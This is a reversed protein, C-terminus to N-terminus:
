KIAEFTPPKDGGRKFIASKLLRGTVTDYIRIGGRWDGTAYRKSDPSFALSSMPTATPNSYRIVKYDNSVDALKLGNYGWIALYKGDPSYATQTEVTPASMLIRHKGHDLDYLRLGDNCPIVCHTGDPAIAASGRIHDSDNSVNQLSQAIEQRELNWVDAHNLGVALFWRGDNSFPSSANQPWRPVLSRSSKPSLQEGTKTNVVQVAKEGCFRLWSGDPSQEFMLVKAGSLLDAGVWQQTTLNWTRIPGWSKNVLRLSSSDPAFAISWIFMQPFGGQYEFPITTSDPFNSVDIVSVTRKLDKPFNSGPGMVDLWAVTAAALKTGDPSFSLHEIQQHPQPTFQHPPSKPRLLVVISLLGAALAIVVFLTRLKFQM